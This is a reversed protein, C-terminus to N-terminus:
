HTTLKTFTKYTSSCYKHLRYHVHPCSNKNQEWCCYCNRVKCFVRLIYMLRILKSTPTLTLSLTTAERTAWITFCRVVIHSVWTQDRTQSYGRSFSIAVWQLVRAQFIGHISSCPLSCDTPNCLTPCLQTVESESEKPNVHFSVKELGTAVASNELNAPM